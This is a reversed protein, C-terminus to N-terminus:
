PRCWWSPSPAACYRFTKMNHLGAPSIYFNCAFGASNEPWLPPMDLCLRNPNARASLVRELVMLQHMIRHLPGRRRVSALKERVVDAARRILTANNHFFPSMSEIHVGAALCSRAAVAVGRAM